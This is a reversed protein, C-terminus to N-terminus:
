TKKQAWIWLLFVRCKSPKASKRFHLPLRVPLGGPSLRWLAAPLLTVKSKQWQSWHLQEGSTDSGYSARPLARDGKASGLVCRCTEGLGCLGWEGSHYTLCSGGPQGGAAPHAPSPPLCLLQLGAKGGSWTIDVIELRSLGWFVM